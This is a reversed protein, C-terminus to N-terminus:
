LAHGKRFRSAAVTKLTIGCNACILVLCILPSEEKPIGLATTFQELRKDFEGIALKFLKGKCEPCQTTHATSVESVM